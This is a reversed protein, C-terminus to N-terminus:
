IQCAFDSKRPPLIFKPIPIECGSVYINFPTIYSTTLLQSHHTPYLQTM